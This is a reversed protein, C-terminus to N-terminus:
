YGTSSMPMPFFGIGILALGTFFLFFVLSLRIHQHRRYEVYKLVSSVSLGVGMVFCIGHILRAAYYAPQRLEHAIQGFSAAQCPLAFFLCILIFFTSFAVTSHRMFSKDKKTDLSM